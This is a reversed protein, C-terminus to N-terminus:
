QNRTICAIGRLDIKRGHAMMGDLALARERTDNVGSNFSTHMSNLFYSRDVHKAHAIYELVMGLM